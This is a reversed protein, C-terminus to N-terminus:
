KIKVVIHRLMKDDFSLEKELGKIDGNEIIFRLYFGKTEKEIAYALNRVGWKDVETVVFGNKKVMEALSKECAIENESLPYIVLVEYSNNKASGDLRTVKPKTIKKTKEKTAKKAAM